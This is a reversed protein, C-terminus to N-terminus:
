KCNSLNENLYSPYILSDNFAIKEFKNVVFENIDFVTNYLELYSLILEM